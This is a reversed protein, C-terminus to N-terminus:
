QRGEGASHPDAQGQLVEILQTQDIEFCGSMSCRYPFAKACAFEVRIHGRPNAASLSLSMEGPSMSKLSAVGESSRYLTRVATQFDQVEDAAVWCSGWGVYGNISAEFEIRVDGARPLEPHVFETVRLEITHPTSEIRV